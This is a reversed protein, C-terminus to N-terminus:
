TLPFFPEIESAEMPSPAPSVAVGTRRRELPHIPIGELILPEQRETALTRRKARTALYADELEQAHRDQDVKVAEAMTAERSEAAALSAHAKALQVELMRSFIEAEEAHRLGERLESAQRDYQEDLALLYMALHVVTPNDEQVDLGQLSEMHAKWVRRNKDWPPFFRMPTRAIPGEFIQCLHRLAKRAAVQYTDGFRFGTATVNWAETIDSFEESKAIYITVKCRETGHKM